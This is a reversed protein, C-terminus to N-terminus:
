CLDPMWFPRCIVAESGHLVKNPLSTPLLKNCSSGQLYIKKGLFCPKESLPHLMFIVM